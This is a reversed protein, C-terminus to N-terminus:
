RSRTFPMRHTNPQKLRPLLLKLYLLRFGNYVQRVLAVVESDEAGLVTYPPTFFDAVACGERTFEPNFCVGFDIGARKGSSQELMPIVVSSTTGPVVTSRLVVVHSSSKHALAIGIERCVQRLHSLDQKGSALSPTGVCVFSIDSETVAALNDTTARLRGTRHGEVVLDDMGAEIIPSRGSGLMDVKTSNVDVGIVDFGKSALCVATVSGVYGLGFVSIARIDAKKM